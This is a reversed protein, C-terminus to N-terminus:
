RARSDVGIGIDRGAEDRIHPLTQVPVHQEHEFFVLEPTCGVSAMIAERVVETAGQHRHVAVIEVISPKGRALRAADEDAGRESPMAANPSAMGRTTSDSVDHRAPRGCATIPLPVAAATASDHIPAARPTASTTNKPTSVCAFAPTM